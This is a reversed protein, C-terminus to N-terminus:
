GQTWYNVQKASLGVDNSFLQLQVRGTAFSQLSQAAIAFAAVIGVPGQIVQTIGSLISSTAGLQVNSRKASDSLRDNEIRFRNFSSSGGQGLEAARKNMSDLERGMSKLTTSFMDRIAVEIEVRAKEGPDPM